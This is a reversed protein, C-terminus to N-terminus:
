SSSPKGEGNRATRVWEGPRAGPKLAIMLKWAMYVPALILVLADRPRAESLMFGRAVHTVLFIAVVTWGILSASDARGGHVLYATASWGVATAAVLTSLPPVLLDAALDLRIPDREAIGRRCLPPVFRRILGHRGSEWRKRQSVAAAGTVPMEGFVAAEPVYAVRIGQLALEAGFEVDEALSFARYAVRKLLASSFAMGNGRLGCSLGLRERGLSRVTHYTSFAVTMLRTRWSVNPNRVGFEVQACEAGAALRSAFAALLNPTVITDADVVVIADAFGDAFSAEYGHGLAYGKGRHMPDRREIVSAGGARARAATEDTCNDAIVLVRFRDTPYELALLNAVTAAVGREENYAPVIIDFRLSSDGPPTPRRRSAATLLALYSAAAVLPLSVLVSVIDVAVRLSSM